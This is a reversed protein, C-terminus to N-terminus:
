FVKKASLILYDRNRDLNSVSSEKEANIYSFTFNVTALEKSISVTKTTTDNDLVGYIIQSQVPGFDYTANFEYYNKDLTQRGSKVGDTDDIYYAAGFTYPKKEPALTIKGYWEGYQKIDKTPAGPFNYSAYGVDFTALGATTNIGLYYDREQGGAGTVNDQAGTWAGVYFNINSIPYTFDAGVFPSAKDKNQDVGRSIYQSNIGANFTLSGKGIKIEANAAQSLFLLSAFSSLIIKKNM